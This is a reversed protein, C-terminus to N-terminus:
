KIRFYKLILKDLDRSLELIKSSNYNDAEEMLKDLNKRLKEIETKIEPLSDVIIM